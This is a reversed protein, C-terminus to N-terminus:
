VALVQLGSESAASLQRRDSSIFLDAQWGLACAIHLADLTRLPFREILDIAKYVISVTIACVSMDEIDAYLAGKAEDYQAASISGRRRVRCLASLIEPPCILCIAVESTQALVTRVKDSGPEMIYRKALASSDLFSKM